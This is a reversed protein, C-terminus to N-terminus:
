GIGGAVQGTINGIAKGVGLSPVAGIISSFTGIGTKVGAAAGALAANDNVKLATNIVKPLTPIILIFAFSLFIRVLSDPDVGGIYGLPSPLWNFKSPLALPLCSPDSVGTTYKDANQKSGAPTAPAANFITNTSKAGPIQNANSNPGGGNYLSVYYCQSTTNTTKLNLFIGVMLLCAFTAPFVICSAILSKIWGSIVAIGGGGPFAAPLLMFPSFMIKFVISVYAGILAFVSRVMVVFIVFSAIADILGNYGFGNTIVGTLIQTFITAITSFVEHIVPVNISGFVGAITSAPYDLYQLVSKGLNSLSEGFGIQQLAYFMTLINTNSNPTNLNKLIDTSNIFQNFTSAVIGNGLNIFVDVILGAIAYSFTIIILTVVAPVLSSTFTVAERGGIKNQILILFGSLVFVIIFLVYAINRFFSWLTIIPSFAQYGNINSQANAPKAIGINSNLAYYNVTEHTSAPAAEFLNGAFSLAASTAGGTRDEYGAPLTSSHKIIEEPVGDSINFTSAATCPEIKQPSGGTTEWSLNRALDNFNGKVVSKSCYPNTDATNSNTSQANIISTLPSLLLIFLATILFPVKWHNSLDNIVFGVFKGPIKLATLIKEM